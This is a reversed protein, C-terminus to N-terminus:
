DNAIRLLVDCHCPDKPHCWCALNKGRLHIKWGMNPRDPWPFNRLLGARLATEFKRIVAQRDGDRGIKFPNGYYGPRACNVAPLGNLKQSAEQLRFGKQRSLQIRQPTM